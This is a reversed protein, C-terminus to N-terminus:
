WWPCPTSATGTTTFSQIPGTATLGAMTKSVIKWYYTTGGALTPLAFSQNQTATESPGIAQNSALLPPNPDTGFYVDYIHAWPGGYWTLTATTSQGTAGGAPSVSVPKDPPLPVFPQTEVAGIPNANNWKREFQDVFYQFIWSKTTFYNHEQQSNASASTWNSSGFITMGQGYLLVLKEHNEGDSARVRLPIGAAYIRDMNWAVWLRRPDRYERTEGMYRVAVGRGFAAILADTHRRDTVRYMDADLKVNEANYLKVARNAYDQGPPFNMDASIAYTPYVRVRASVNAYPTYNATDTWLDDFKTKFSNVIASDDCYYITESVYNTYASTPVFADPSYNASGFEVTNQGAFLMTKWHMIGAGNKKMMPVGANQFADLSTQNMPYSPNARPDLILRVPVGAQWRAIIHTVFRQDEMFWFGADIGVKENDILALLQDRCNSYSSDCLTESANARTPAFLAFALTFAAFWSLRDCRHFM